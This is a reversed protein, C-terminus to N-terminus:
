GVGSQTDCLPLLHFLANMWIVEKKKNGKSIKKFFRNFKSPFRRNSKNTSFRHNSVPVERVFSRQM